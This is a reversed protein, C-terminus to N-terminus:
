TLASAACFSASRALFFRGLSEELEPDDESLLSEELLLEDELLFAAGLCVLFDLELEPELESLLEEEDDAFGAALTADGAFAALFDEDDDPDDEDDPDEDDDPDDEDELSSAGATSSFPVLRFASSWISTSVGNLFCFVSCAAGDVGPDTM